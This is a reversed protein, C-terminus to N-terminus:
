GFEIIYEVLEGYTIGITSLDDTEYTVTWGSWSSWLELHDPSICNTLNDNIFKPTTHLIRALKTLANENM